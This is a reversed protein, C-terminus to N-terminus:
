GSALSSHWHQCDDIARSGGLLLPIWPIIVIETHSLFALLHLGVGMGSCGFYCFFRNLFLPFLSYDNKAGL